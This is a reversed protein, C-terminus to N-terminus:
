LELDLPPRCWATVGVVAATVHPVRYTWNRTDTLLWRGFQVRDWSERTYGLFMAEQRCFRAKVVDGPRLAKAQVLLEVAPGKLWEYSM